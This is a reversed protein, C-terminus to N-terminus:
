LSLFIIIKSFVNTQKNQPKKQVTECKGKELISHISDTIIFWFAYLKISWLCNEERSENNQNRM